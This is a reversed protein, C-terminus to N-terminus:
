RIREMYKKTKYRKGARRLLRDLAAAQKFKKRKNEISGRVEDFSMQGSEEKQFTRVIHWGFESKVAGSYRGAKLAFATKEVIEPLGTKQYQGRTMGGLGGGMDREPGLSYKKALEAFDSGKNLKGLIDKAEKETGVMIHSATVKSIKQFDKKNKEYYVRLEKETPKSKEQLDLVALRIVIERRARSIHKKVAEKKELGQEKAHRYILLRSVLGELIDKKQLQAAMQVNKPLAAIFLNLDELTIQSDGVTAIVIRGPPPSKKEAACAIGMSGFVMAGMLGCLIWRCVCM